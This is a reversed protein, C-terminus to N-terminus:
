PSFRKAPNRIQKFSTQLLLRQVNDRAFIRFAYRAYPLLLSQLALLRQPFRSLMKCKKVLAHCGTKLSRTNKHM